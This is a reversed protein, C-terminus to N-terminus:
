PPGESPYIQAAVAKCMREAANLFETRNGFSKAWILLVRKLLAPTKITHAATIKGHYAVGLTTYRPNIDGNIAVSSHEAQGAIYTKWAQEVEERPAFPVGASQCMMEWLKEQERRSIREPLEHRGYARLLRFHREDVAPPPGKNAAKAKRRRKGM